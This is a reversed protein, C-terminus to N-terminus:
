DNKSTELCRDLIADEAQHRKFTKYTALWALLVVPTWWLAGQWQGKALAIFIGALFPASFVAVILIYPLANRSPQQNM